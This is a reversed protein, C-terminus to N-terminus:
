SGPCRGRDDDLQRAHGVRVRDALEDALGAAEVEHREAVVARRVLAVVTRSRSGLERRQEAAVLDDTPSSRCPGSRGAPDDVEDELVVARLQEGVVGGACMPSYKAITRSPVTMEAGTM